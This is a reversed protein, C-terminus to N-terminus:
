DKGANRTLQQRLHAEDVSAASRFARTFSKRRVARALCAEDAHLWAGRGGARARDVAVTGEVVRLRLLGAPRAKGGCGICTRESAGGGDDASIAKAASSDAM